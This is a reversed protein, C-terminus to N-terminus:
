RPSPVPSPHGTVSAAPRQGPIAVPSGNPAPAPQLPPLPNPVPGTVVLTYIRGGTNGAGDSATVTFTFQGTGTPTGSLTGDTALVIGPPLSGSVAFTYPPNGGSAAITQSYRAGIAGNPLGTPNITLGGVVILKSVFADSAGGGFTTGNTVPFTASSTKGTVYANGAADVAIGDGEETGSGGMYTGFVRTGSANLKVVFADSVGNLMTADTVPLDTSSTYGTVYVSGGAGAAIAYAFDGGSGGLAVSYARAGATNLKTVFAGEGSIATGNTLPFDTSYTDGTVYANGNGDLAIGTGRDEDSGGLYTSYVRGGTSNVKTVFADITGGFASGNTVPFDASYTYGTIYANGVADVALANAEDQDTGGLFTSYVIGGSGNLKTLFADRSGGGYVPQSVGSTSPFNMSTTYGTIYANGSTDAVIGHAAESGDGGLYTSYVQGGGANLKTVFAEDYAHRTRTGATTPFDYSYTNGAVYADGGADVAIAYGTDFGTGGLYTSYVRAGSADLKTVFADTYTGYAPQFAAPGTPFNASTTSGTIYASGHGDVAIGYGQDDGTGGLFTSYSLTPDIVLPLTPDYAGVAFGVTGDGRLAYGGTVAHREGDVRQYLIPARQRMEGTPTALVLDGTAVDLAVDTAGGIALAFTGPDAGPAVIVDYEVGGGDTGYLVFDVGPYLDGYRVRASTPIGTQWRAPDNGIFSNVVGPLPEEARVAPDPNAGPFTFRLPTPLGVTIADATLALTMGRGRALFRVAQGAQGANTEFALSTIPLAGASVTPTANLAPSRNEVSQAGVSSIALPLAALLATILLRAHHPPRSPIWLFMRKTFRSM